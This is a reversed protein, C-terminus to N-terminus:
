RAYRDGDARPPTASLSRHEIRHRQEMAVLDHGNRVVHTTGATEGVGRILFPHWHTDVGGNTGAIVGREAGSSRSTGGGNMGGQVVPTHLPLALPARDVLVVARTAWRAWCSIPGTFPVGFVHVRQINVAKLEAMLNRLATMLRIYAFRGSPVQVIVPPHHRLSTCTHYQVEGMHLVVPCHSHGLLYDLTDCIINITAKDDSMPVVVLPDSAIVRPLRKPKYVRVWLTRWLVTAYMCSALFPNVESDMINSSQNAGGQVYKTNAEDMQFRLSLQRGDDLKQRGLHLNVIEVVEEAYAIPTTRYTPKCMVMCHMADFLVFSAHVTSLLTRQSTVVVAKQLFSRVLRGHDTDPDIDPTQAQIIDFALYVCHLHVTGMQLINRNFEAMESTALFLVVPEKQVCDPYYALRLTGDTGRRTLTCMTVELLRCIPSATVTWYHHLNSFFPPQFKMVGPQKVRAAEPAEPVRLDAFPGGRKRKLPEWADMRLQPPQRKRRPLPPRNEVLTLSSIEQKIEVQTHTEEEVADVSSRANSESVMPTTCTARIVESIPEVKTKKKPWKLTKMIISQAERSYFKPMRWEALATRVKTSTVNLMKEQCCCGKLDEADFFEKGKWELREKSSRTVILTQSTPRKRIDSGVM